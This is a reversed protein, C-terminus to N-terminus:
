EHDRWDYDEQDIEYQKNILTMVFWGALLFTIFWGFM